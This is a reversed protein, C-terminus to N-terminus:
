AAPRLTPCTGRFVVYSCSVGSCSGDCPAGKGYCECCSWQQNLSDCCAWCWACDCNSCSPSPSYCLNCCQYSYAGAVRPLGLLALAGGVAGAGLRALFRRRSLRRGLGEVLREASM